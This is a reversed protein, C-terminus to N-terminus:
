VTCKKFFGIIMDDAEGHGHFNNYSSLYIVSIDTLKSFDITLKGSFNNNTMELFGLKSCNSISVPLVETLENGWLQLLELNPLQSGIKSPLSRTLHNDALTFDVLLTLNFISHPISGYLNCDHCYFTTLSKWLGLTDPISGGFPNERASFVEMSTINGLSPPIGGTLKNDHIALVSLKSLLSMEKPVSGVLKNFGLKLDELNSCCSLNTPIVGSFRNVSLYLHRLRFLRGLEHPITGQFSNNPLSLKRLFSLNGVHPSLSGELGQSKLHLVTVRKHRKGCTIGSWDCYHSHNWSTLVKYPDHTIMSKFSLLALYDTENGGGSASFTTSTLCTIALSYFLFSIRSSSSLHIIAQPSKMNPFKSLIILVPM